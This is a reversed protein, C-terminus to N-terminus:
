PGSIRPRPTGDPALWDPFGVLREVAVVLLCAAVIGLVLRVRAASPPRRAWRAMRLFRIPSM